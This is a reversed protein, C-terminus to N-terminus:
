LAEIPKFEKVPISVTRKIEKAEVIRDIAESVLATFYKEGCQQCIGVPVGEIIYLQGKWRYEHEIVEEVVEGGCFYCDGYNHAMKIVESREREKM